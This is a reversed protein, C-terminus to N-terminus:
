ALLALSAVSDVNVVKANADLKKVIGSLVKGPGIEYFTHFGNGLLHRMSDEWLVPAEVQRGLHERVDAATRVPRGTVNSVVDIRPDRVEVKSLAERLRAAAPAMLPSHFAGAVKLPIARKAGIEKAAACAAEVAKTEGSIAIQGPGLLNAVVCVGYESGRRCAEEVQEIEAGLITAMTSPRADCAEQMAQGRLRVLGVADRFSLADAAVLATYEGLSLGAAAKAEIPRGLKEHAASLAAVSMVLIAPQCVDTRELTEAPGEFCAKAIDIGLVENAQDFVARAAVSSAYLDKGMGVIQAGQGPFLFATTM